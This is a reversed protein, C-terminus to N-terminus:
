AHDVLADQLQSPTIVANGLKRVALGAAANAWRAAEALPLGALLALTLVAVVTDGAGVVDYIEGAPAAPSHFVSGDAARLSIGEAGRTIALCRVDLQAALHHLAREFDRDDALTAGLEVEAEARNCKVLDFGRFRSLDAQADAVVLAGHQAALAHARAALAPTVVGGRYHSLLLAGCAPALVELRTLLSQEAAADLPDRALADMRAVHQPVRLVSEAVLRTKTTTPRTPDAVVGDAEVGARSLLELLRRGADDDGIVGLMVARSGLVTINHAPNCAGGPLAFSHTRELVPVPAERSLRVARGVWYEDLFMDGAVLVRRGALLSVASNTM